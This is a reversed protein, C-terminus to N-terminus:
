REHRRALLTWLLRDLRNGHQELFRLENSRIVPLLTQAARPEHRVRWSSSVVSHFGHLELRRGFDQDEGAAAYFSDYGGVRDFTRRLVVVAAGVVWPVIAPRDSVAAKLVRRDFRARTGSLRRLVRRAGPFEGWSVTPRDLADCTLAGIAGVTPGLCQLVRLPSWELVEADPSLFLLAEGQTTGVALNAAAAYGLNSGPVLVSSPVPSSWMAVGDGLDGANDVVVVERLHPGIRRLSALAAPLSARHGFSVVVASIDRATM